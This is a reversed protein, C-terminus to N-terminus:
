LGSLIAINVRVSSFGLYGVLNLPRFTDSFMEEFSLPDTSECELEPSCYVTYIASEIFAAKPM